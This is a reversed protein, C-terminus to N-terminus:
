YGGVMDCIGCSGHRTSQDNRGIRTGCAALIESDGACIRPPMRRGRLITDLLRRGAKLVWRFNVHGCDEVNLLEALTEAGPDQEIFDGERDVFPLLDTEDTHVAGSLRGQHL